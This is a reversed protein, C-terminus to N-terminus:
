NQIKYILELAEQRNQAIEDLSISSINDTGLKFINSKTTVHPNLPFEFDYDAFIKQAKQKTMFEVLKISNTINKTYKSMMIGSVNAYIGDTMQDLPVLIAKQPLNKNENLLREYYYHNVPALDCLGSSILDIQGTDNGSPKDFLNEYFGKLWKETEEPTHTNLYTAILSINYPHTLPRTCIRGKMKPNSLADYGNIKIPLENTTKVLMRLRGTLGVWLNDKSRYQIPINKNIINSNIKQILKTNIIDYISSIDSVLILDAPTFEGESKLRELIGQKLFIFNVKIGTEATFADFIPKVLDPLRASYVNVYQSEKTKNHNNSVKKTDIINTKSQNTNDNISSDEDCNALFM